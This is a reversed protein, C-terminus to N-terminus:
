SQSAAPLSKGSQAANPDVRGQGLDFTSAFNDLKFYDSKFQIEVFGKLKASADTSTSKNSTAISVQSSTRSLNSSAQARWPGFKGGGSASFNANTTRNKTDSSTDQTTANANIQFEVEARITGKEVVLRSVGMLITERLMTRKEKALALKAEIIKGQIASNNMDVPQKTQLDILTPLGAEGEGEGEGTAGLPSPPGLSYGGSTEVMKMLADMDTVDKAFEDIGKTAKELLRQYAEMQRENAELNANFVGNLLDRVFGPFDVKDVLNAFNNGAQQINDPNSDSLAMALGTQRAVSSHTQISHDLAPVSMAQAPENQKILEQYVKDVLDKYVTFQQESSLNRFSESEALIVRAKTRAQNKLEEPTSV